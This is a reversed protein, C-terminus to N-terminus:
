IADFLGFPMGIVVVFLILALLSGPVFLVLWVAKRFGSVEFRRLWSLGVLLSVILWSFLWIGGVVGRDLGDAIRPVVVFLLSTLFYTLLIKAIVMSAGKGVLADFDSGFSM